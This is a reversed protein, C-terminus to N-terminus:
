HAACHRLCISTLQASLQKSTQQPTHTHTKHNLADSRKVYINMGVELFTCKAPIIGWNWFVVIILCLFWEIHTHANSIWATLLFIRYWETEMLRFYRPKVQKWYEKNQWFSTYSDGKQFTWGATQQDLVGGKEGGEEGRGKEEEGRCAHQSLVM